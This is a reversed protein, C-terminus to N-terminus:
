GLLFIVSPNLIAIEDVLNPYCKEMEHKLPYRIKDNMLPLCKVVNTKYFPIDNRFPEEIQSILTGTKTFPSLPM